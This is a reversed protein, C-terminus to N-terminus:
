RLCASAPSAAGARDLCCRGLPATATVRWYGVTETLAAREISPLANPLAQTMEDIILNGGALCFLHGAQLAGPEAARYSNERDKTLLVWGRACGGAISGEDPVAGADNPSHDAILHAVHGAERLRTATIRGLSRDLFFEPPGTSFM